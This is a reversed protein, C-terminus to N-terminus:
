TVYKKECKHINKIYIHKYANQIHTATNQFTRISISM